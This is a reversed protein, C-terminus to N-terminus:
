CHIKRVYNRKALWDTCIVEPQAEALQKVCVQLDQYYQPYSKVASM